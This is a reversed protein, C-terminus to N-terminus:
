RQCRTESHTIDCTKSCSFLGCKACQYRGWDGCVSCFRRAPYPSTSVFPVASLGDAVAEDLYNQLGKKSGLIKRVSLAQKKRAGANNGQSKPLDIKVDTYNERQLEEIHRLVHRYRAATDLTAYGAKQQARSLIRPASSTSLEEVLM